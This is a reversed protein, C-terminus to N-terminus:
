TAITIHNNIDVPRQAYLAIVKLLFRYALYNLSIPHKYHTPHIVVYRMDFPLDSMIPDYKLWAEFAKCQKYISANNINNVDLANVLLNHIITALFPSYVIYRKPIPNLNFKVSGISNYDEIAKTILDDKSKLSNVNPINFRELNGTVTEILYPKGNCNNITLVNPYDEDLKLQSKDKLLGDVYYLISRLDRVEYRSDTSLLTNNVFGTEYVNDIFDDTRIVIDQLGDTDLYSKNIIIINPHDYFYDLGHILLRGNMYLKLSRYRVPAIDYKSGEDVYMHEFVKTIYVGNNYDLTESRVFQKRSSRIYTTVTPDNIIRTLRDGVFKYTDNNVRSFGIDTNKKEYISFPYKRDLIISKNTLWSDPYDSGYGLQGEALIVNPNNCVVTASDDHNWYYIMLGSNDYGFLVSKEQLGYPALGTNNIIPFPINYYLAILAYYGYLEPLNVKSLQEIDYGKSQIYLSTELTAAQWFPLVSNNSLLLQTLTDDNQKYLEHIHDATDILIRDLGDNRIILTIDCVSEAKFTKHANLFYVLRDIPLGYDRHTIMTLSNLEHRHYYLGKKSITDTIYIDIDDQFHVTSKDVHDYHLLYKYCKDLTSKYVQLDDIPMTVIRKISPDYYIDIYDGIQLTEIDGIRFGNIICIVNGPLLLKSRYLAKISFLNGLNNVKTSIININYNINEKMSFFANQYFRVYLNNASIKTDALFRNSIAFLTDKSKSFCIFCKNAPLVQGIENYIMCIMNTKDSNYYLTNWVDYEWFEWNNDIGLYELNIQGIQYVHYLDDTTPLSYKSKMLTFFSRYGIPSSIRHLKFIRQKDQEPSCSIRNIANNLLFPIM